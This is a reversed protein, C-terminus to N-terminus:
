HTFSVRTTFFSDWRTHFLTIAVRNPAAIILRTIVSIGFPQCDMKENVPFMMSQSMLKVEVELQISTMRPNHVNAKITRSRRM